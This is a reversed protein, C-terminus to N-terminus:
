SKRRIKDKKIGHRRLTKYSVPIGSCKMEEAVRRLVQSM